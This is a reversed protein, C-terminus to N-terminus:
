GQFQVSIDFEESRAGLGDECFISSGNLVSVDEIFLTSVIDIAAQNNISPTAIFVEATVGQLHVPLSLPRPFSGEHTSRYSYDVLNVSGYKWLFTTSIESGTCTINVPRPCFSGMSFPDTTLTLSPAGVYFTSM